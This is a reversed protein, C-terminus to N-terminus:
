LTFVPSCSLIKLLAESSLGARTGAISPPTPARQEGVAGAAPRQPAPVPGPRKGTCQEFVREDARELQLRGM